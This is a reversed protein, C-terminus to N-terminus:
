YTTSFHYQGRVKRNHRLRFQRRHDRSERVRVLEAVAYEMTPSRMRTTMVAYMQVLGAKPLPITTVLDCDRTLTSFEIREDKRPFPIGSTNVDEVM